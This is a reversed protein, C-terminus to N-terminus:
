RVLIVGDAGNVQLFLTGAPLGALDLAYRMAGAAEFNWERLLRGQADFLRIFAPTDTETFEIFTVDDVVPNPYVSFVPQGKDMKVKLINSVETTGDFDVQRLRYYNLGNQPSKDEFRYQKTGVSNGAGKVDGISEFIDGTISHEVVFKDNNRETATTWQLVVSSGLKQAKFQTLKVPLVNSLSINCSTYGYPMNSENENALELMQNTAGAPLTIVVKWNAGPVSTNDFTGVQFGTFVTGGGGNPTYCIQGIVDEGLATNSNVYVTYTNGSLTHGVYNRFTASQLWFASLLFIFLILSKKM